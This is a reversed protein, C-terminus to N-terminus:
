EIAGHESHGILLSRAPIPFLALCSVFRSPVSPVCPSVLCRFALRFPSLPFLFPILSSCPSVAGIYNFAGPSVAYSSEVKEAMAERRTTKNRTEAGEDRSGRRPERTGSRTEDLKEDPEDLNDPVARCPVARCFSRRAFRFPASHFVGIVHCVSFSVCSRSAHRCISHYASCFRMDARLVLRSRCAPCSALRHCLVVFVLPSCTSVTDFSFADGVPLRCFRCAIALRLVSVLFPM